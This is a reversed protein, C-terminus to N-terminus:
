GEKKGVVHWFPANESFHIHTLGANQMMERIQTKSFRQELSTGFRDLADNRIIYFSKDRYYSLPLKQAPDRLFPVVYMARCLLVLPMYVVLAILDCVLSKLRFPLRCVMSRIVNVVGFLAKFAMGRNDLNYYIYLLMWGDPKLKQVCKQLAQATNPVHHLVGLSFVFDFANDEFPLEDVGAQTIRVNDFDKLLEDAVFVAQSPDVAEIFGVHPALYKTWRGSGCGVDLVKSQRDLMEDTVIDFYQDGMKQLLAGEFEGFRQWEDGFSDIVAEDTHEGGGNAAIFSAIPKCTHTHIHLPQINYKMM